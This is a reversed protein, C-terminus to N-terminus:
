LAEDIQKAISVLDEMDLKKAHTEIIEVFYSKTNRLKINGNNAICKGKFVTIRSM